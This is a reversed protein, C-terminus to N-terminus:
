LLKDLQEDILSVMAEDLEVYAHKYYKGDKGKKSPFAIFDGNKGEVYRCGYITVGNVEMDFFVNDDFEKARVVKLDFIKSKQVEQSKEEQSVEEKSRRSM